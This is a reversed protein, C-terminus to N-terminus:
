YYNQSDEYTVVDSQYDNYYNSYSDEVTQVQSSTTNNGLINTSNTPIKIVVKKNIVLNETLNCGNFKDNGAYKVKVACSGTASDNVEFGAEGNADTTVVKQISGSSASVITINLNQNSLPTNNLDTLKVTFNDGETLNDGCTIIVKSDQKPHAQNSMLFSATGIVVVIIAIVLIFKKFDM